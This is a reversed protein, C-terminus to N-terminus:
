REVLHHLVLDRGDNVLQYLLPYSVNLRRVMKAPAGRDVYCWRLAERYYSPLNCVIHEVRDGDVSDICRPPEPPSWMRANSRAFKWMPLARREQSVHVYMGWNELRGHIAIHGPAVYHFDIHERM